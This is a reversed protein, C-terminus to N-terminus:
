PIVCAIVCAVCPAQLRLAALARVLLWMALLTAAIQSKFLISSGGRQIEGAVDSGHPPSIPRGRPRDLPALPRRKQSRRKIQM